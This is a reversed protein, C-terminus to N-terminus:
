LSLNVTGCYKKYYKKRAHLLLDIQSHIKIKQDFLLERIAFDNNKETDEEIISIIRSMAIKLVSISKDISQTKSRDEIELSEKSTLSDDKMINRLSKVTLHRRAVLKAFESQREPDKLPILEEATSPSLASTKIKELVEDPLELLGIRRVIASPSRGIKRSLKAVSGWGHDSMYAKFATAEELPTFSKRRINEVLALEFSQTEDLCVIHCPIKKWKLKKCALYRRYGAVIEFCKDKPRVTLPHILGHQRISQTIKEINLKNSIRLNNFPIIIDSIPVDDMIGSLRSGNRLDPNM